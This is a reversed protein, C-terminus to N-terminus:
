NPVILYVEKRLRKREDNTWDRIIDLAGKLSQESYLCCGWRSSCVDVVSGEMM